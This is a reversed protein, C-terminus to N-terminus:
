NKSAIEKIHADLNFVIRGKQLLINNAKEVSLGYDIVALALEFLVRTDIYIIDLLQAEEDPNTYANSRDAPDQLLDHNVILGGIANPYKVNNKLLLHKFVQIIYTFSPNSNQTGKVEVLISVDKYKILLDEKFNNKRTKDMDEVELKFVDKLTQIVSDKLEDGSKTVLNHLFAYRVKIKEKEEKLAAVANQTEAFLTEIKNDTDSVEKPYYKNSVAWDADIIESIFKPYIRAFVKLLKTIVEPYDKYSPLILFAPKDEDEFRYGWNFYIGVYESNGNVYSPFITWNESSNKSEHEEVVIYKSPPIKILSRVEEFAMRLPRGKEELASIITKDNGASDTFKAHVIGLMCMTDFGCDDVFITLFGNHDHWYKYFNLMQKESIIKAKDKYQNELPPSKTLKIFIAKYEYVALPSYFSACEENSGDPAVTTFADSLYGLDVDIGLKAITEQVGENFNVLLIRTKM